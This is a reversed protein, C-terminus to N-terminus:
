CSLSVLTRSCNRKLLYVLDLASRLRKSYISPPLLIYKMRNTQMQCFIISTVPSTADPHTHKFPRQSHQRCLILQFFVSPRILRQPHSTPAISICQTVIIFPRATRLLNLVLNFLINLQIHHHITSFVM